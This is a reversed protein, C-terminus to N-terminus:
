VFQTIRRRSDRGMTKLKAVYQLAHLWDYAGELKAQFFRRDDHSNVPLRRMFFRNDSKSSRGIITSVGGAYGAEQLVGRLRGVFESDTEPFAYPYSFAKVPEGLKAEIQEKSATIEEWLQKPGVGSLQPHTVTHSGFEVGASRLERVQDWTLCEAGKFQRAANGIFATPLFVTATYGYRNLVPFANTYFDQYGDDFTIAVLKEGTMGRQASQLAETVSVARYGSHHLFSVQEEFVGAATSTCYYPHTACNDEKPVRHYMLIPLGPAESRVLQRMPHFFYLTAIRDSRIEPM